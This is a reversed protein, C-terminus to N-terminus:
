VMRDMRGDDVARRPLFARRRVEGTSPAKARAETSASVAVAQSEPPASVSSRAAAVADVPLSPLIVIGSSM